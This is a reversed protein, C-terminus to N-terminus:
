LTIDIEQGLKSTITTLLDPLNQPTEGKSEKYLATIQETATKIDPYKETIKKGVKEALVKIGRGGVAKKDNLNNVIKTIEVIGGKRLVKQTTVGLIDITKYNAKFSINSTKM